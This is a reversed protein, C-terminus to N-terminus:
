WGAAYSERRPDAGGLLFGTKPDRLICCVSGPRWGFDPWTDLKYGRERLEAGAEREISQEVVARGPKYEHPWFSNPFNFTAGRPAEVAMQPAMGFEAINLFVQAMAQPQVDGGPTGLTMYFEGDKLVLAPAPTLRPRKWPQVSSPHAEDLWSQSGRGSVSAGVGPFIPVDGSGDSPTAAFANGEADVATCFSTDQEFAGAGATEKLNFDAARRGNGKQGKQFAWPDGAPPMGGFAEAREMLKAREAAYGKSLLGEAPVEVFEPDGLFAHRDAFTLDFASFLAHLSAPRNHGLARLDVRELLNLAQPLTLGQCWPGCAHIEHGKYSSVVPPEEGVHFGALDELTMAGGNKQIFDVIRRATEGKYIEDRAARVGAPRSSAKAEARAMREYTGALDRHLVPAGVPVLDGDPFYVPRNEPFRHYNERAGAIHEHMFHHMPFGRGALEIADAAVDAFRMTGYKELATLWADAAAPVLCRAVGPPIEGGWKERFWQISVARPWRGLGSITVVRREKALYLIIPAVGLFSIMDTLLVSMCLGAAVGADVANGGRDLVRLGAQTALHHGSAVMARRGAVQPRHCIYERGDPLRHRFAM